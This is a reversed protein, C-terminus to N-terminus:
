RVVMIKSRVAESPFTVVCFYTGSPVPFGTSDRTDWYVSSNRDSSSGHAVTRVLRGRADYISVTYPVRGGSPAAFSITTMKQTVPNPYIWVRGSSGMGATAAVATSLASENGSVDFAAVAYEYTWRELVHRDVYTTEYRSIEAIPTFTADSESRRYVRYGDLDYDHGGDWTVRVGDQCASASLGAPVGPPVVDSDPTRFTYLRSNAVFHAGDMSSVYYYYRTDSSLGDLVLCHTTAMQADSVSMDCSSTLGYHVTSTAPVNTQWCISAYTPGIQNAVVGFVLLGGPGNQDSTTLTLDPSVTVQDFLDTARVRFHYQSRPLLDGLVAAHETLAFPSGETTFGYSETLGYEVSCFSANSTAWTLTASTATTEAVAVEFVTLTPPDTEITLDDSRATCGSADTSVARVHYEEGPVLDDITVEHGLSLATDGIAVEGYTDDEGYEIFGDAPRSTTWSLAVSTQTTGAVHPGSMGLPACGTTFQRTESQVTADAADTSMAFFDYLANPQLGSLAVTHESVLDDSGCQTDCSGGTGYVVWSSAPNTTNWTVTADTSLTDAITLGYLALEGALTAIVGDTSCISRGLEDTGCVRFHYTTNPSLADVTAEHLTSFETSPETQSGYGQTPGYEVSADCPSSTTWSVSFSTATTDTVTVGAISPLRPLTELVQDAGTTTNGFADKSVARYHYTTEPALNALAVDHQVVLSLYEMTSMGYSQTTGYEVRSTAPRDTLWSVVATTDGVSLAHQGTIRPPAPVRICITNPLPGLRGEVHFELIGMEDAAVPDLFLVSDECTIEFGQNPKMGVLLHSTIDSGAPSDALAPVALLSLIAAWLVVSRAHRASLRYSQGAIGRLSACFM